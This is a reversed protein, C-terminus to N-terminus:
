DPKPVPAHEREWLKGGEDAPVNPLGAEERREVILEGLYRKVDDIAPGVNRVAERLELETVGLDESWRLVEAADNVNIQSLTTHPASM